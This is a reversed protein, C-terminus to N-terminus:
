PHLAQRIEISKKLLEHLSLATAEDKEPRWDFSEPVQVMLSALVAQHVIAAERASSRWLTVDKGEGSAADLFGAINKFHGNSRALAAAALLYQKYEFLTKAEVLNKDSQGLHYKVKSLNGFSWYEKLADVVRSIKYIKNGPMFSPYPLVYEARVPSVIFLCSVCLFFFLIKKM